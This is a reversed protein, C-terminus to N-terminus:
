FIPIYKPGVARLIDRYALLPMLDLMFYIGQPNNTYEQENGKKFLYTTVFRYKRSKTSLFIRPGVEAM